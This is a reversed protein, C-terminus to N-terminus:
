NEPDETGNSVAVVDEAAYWKDDVKVAAITTGNM